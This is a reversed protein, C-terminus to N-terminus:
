RFVGRQPLSKGLFVRAFRRVLIWSPIRAPGAIPIPISRRDALRRVARLRLSAATAMPAAPLTNPIMVVPQPDESEIENCQSGGKDLVSRHLVMFRRSSASFIALSCSRERAWAARIRAVTVSVMTAVTFLAALNRDHTESCEFLRGTACALAAVRRGAFQHLNGGPFDRFEFGAAAEAIGHVRAQSSTAGRLLATTPIQHRGSVLGSIRYCHRADSDCRTLGSIRCDPVDPRRSTRHQM